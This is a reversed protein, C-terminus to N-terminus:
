SSMMQSPEGIQVFHIPYIREEGDQTVGTEVIISEAQPWWAHFAEEDSLVETVVFHDEGTMAMAHFTISPDLGVQEAVARGCADYQEVNGNWETIRLVSM